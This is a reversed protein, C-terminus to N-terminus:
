ACDHVIRGLLPGLFDVAVRVRPLLGFVHESPTISLPVFRTELGHLSNFLHLPLRFEFGRRGAQFYGRRNFIFSLADMAAFVSGHLKLLKCGSEGFAENISHFHLTGGGFVKIGGGKRWQVM